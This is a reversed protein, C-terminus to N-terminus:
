KMGWNTKAEKNHKYDEEYDTFILYDVRGRTNKMM